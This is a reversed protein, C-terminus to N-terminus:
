SVELAPEDSAPVAEGLVRGNFYAARRGWKAWASLVIGAAVIVAPVLALFRGNSASFAFGPSSVWDSYALYVGGALLALASLGPLIVQRLAPGAGTLLAARFRVACAFGALCYYLSVLVGVSIAAAAIFQGLTGIGLALVGLLAAVSCILVTGYAPTAYRKHLRTWVPGLAGDRGMALAGRATPLVGSQLSAVSSFLMAVLPLAALPERALTTGLYPLLTAANAAMAGTPFLRQLGFAALLFMGLMLLLSGYGARAADRPRRTEETVSFVSDWGWFIYVCVVFGNALVKPSGSALPSVWSWTVPQHGKVLAYCCFGILVLYEFVIMPTQFRAVLDAGRIATLTLLVLVILGLVTTLATSGPNLALGFLSHLHAENAFTIALAGCVQSGYALYITSGALTVWGSQFGLWPTLTRGVWTYGAGCNREVRNLQSYASAIGLVPLFALVVLAPISRGVIGAIVGMGIGISLTPATNSMAIVAGDVPGLVERM